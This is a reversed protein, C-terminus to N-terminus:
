SALLQSLTLQPAEELCERLLQIKTALDAQIQASGPVSRIEDFERSLAAHAGALFIYQRSTLNLGYAIAEETSRFDPLAFSALEIM